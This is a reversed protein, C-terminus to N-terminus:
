IDIKRTTKLFVFDRSISRQPISRHKKKYYRDIRHSTETSTRTKTALPWTLETQKHANDKRDTDIVAVTCTVRQTQMSSVQHFYAHSYECVQNSITIRLRCQGRPTEHIYLHMFNTEWTKKTFIWWYMIHSDMLANTFTKTDYRVSM